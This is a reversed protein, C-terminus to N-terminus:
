IKNYWPHLTIEELTARKTPNIVLIKSILDKADSSMWTPFRFSGSLVKKYLQSTDPDCFPLYGALMAFLVIGMSWIDIM